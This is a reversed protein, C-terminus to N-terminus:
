PALTATVKTAAVSPPSSHPQPPHASTPDAGRPGEAPKVVDVASGVDSNTYAVTSAEGKRWRCTAMWWQLRGACDAAGGVPHGAYHEDDFAVGAAAMTPGDCQSWADARTPPVIWCAASRGLSVCVAPRDGGHDSRLVACHQADCDSLPLDECREGGEAHLSPQVPRAHVGLSAAQENFSQLAVRWAQATSSYRDYTGISRAAADSGSIAVEPGEGGPTPTDDIRQLLEQLEQRRTSGPKLTDHFAHLRAILHTRQTVADLQMRATGEDAIRICSDMLTQPQPSSSLSAQPLPLPRAAMRDVGKYNDPTSHSYKAYAEIALTLVIAFILICVFLVAVKDAM